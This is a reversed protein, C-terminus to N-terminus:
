AVRLLSWILALTPSRCFGPLLPDELPFVVHSGTELRSIDKKWEGRGEARNKERVFHARKQTM